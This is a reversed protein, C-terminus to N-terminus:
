AKLSQFYKIVMKVGFALILITRKMLAHRKSKKRGENIVM